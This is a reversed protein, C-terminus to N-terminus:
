SHLGPFISLISLVIGLAVLMVLKYLLPTQHTNLFVHAWVQIKLAWTGLQACHGVGTIEAHSPLCSAATDRFSTFWNPQHRIWAPSLSQELHFTSPGQLSASIKPWKRTEEFAGCMYGYVCTYEHGCTYGYWQTNMGVCTYGYVVCIDMGVCTGMGCTYECGCMYGYGCTYEYGCTYACGCMCGCLYGDTSVCSGMGVCACVLSVHSGALGYCEEELQLKGM